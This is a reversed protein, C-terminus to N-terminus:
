VPRLIENAREDVVDVVGQLWAYTAGRLEAIAEEQDDLRRLLEAHRAANAEEARDVREILTALLEATSPEAPEKKSSDLVRVPDDNAPNRRRREPVFDAGSM